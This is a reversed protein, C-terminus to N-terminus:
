GKWYSRLITYAKRLSSGQVQVETLSNQRRSQLFFLTHQYHALGAKKGARFAEANREMRMELLSTPRWREEEGDPTGPFGEEEM